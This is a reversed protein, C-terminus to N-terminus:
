CAAKPWVLAPAVFCSTSSKSLANSFDSGSGESQFRPWPQAIEPAHANLLKEDSPVVIGSREHPCRCYLGDDFFQTPAFLRQLPDLGTAGVGSHWFVASFLELRKHSVLQSPFASSVPLSHCALIPSQRPPLRLVLLKARGLWHFHFSASVPARRSKCVGMLAQGTLQSFVQLRTRGGNEPKCVNVSTSHNTTIAVMASRAANSKDANLRALIAASVAAQRLLKRWCSKRKGHIDGIEPPIGAIARSCIQKAGGTLEPPLDQLTVNM